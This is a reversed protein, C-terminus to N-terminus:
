ADMAELVKEIDDANSENYEKLANQFTTSMHDCLQQLDELGKKFVETAPVGHTQIRFNIDHVSPHPVSYGCHQVQPNLSIVYRLANGLTHDEDKLLFTRCTVDEEDATPLVELKRTSGEM